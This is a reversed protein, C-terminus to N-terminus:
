RGWSLDPFIVAFMLLFLKISIHYDKLRCFGFMSSDDFQIDKWRHSSKPILKHLALYHHPNTNSWLLPGYFNFSGDFNVLSLDPAAIIMSVSIPPKKLYYGNIIYLNHANSRRICVFEIQKSSSIVNIPPLITYVPQAFNNLILYYLHRRMGGRSSPKRSSWFIEM